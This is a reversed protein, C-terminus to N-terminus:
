RMMVVPPAPAGHHLCIRWSGDQKEFINTAVVRGASDPRKLVEVCTVFGLPGIAHIRVDELEIELDRVGDLVLDWSQLVSEHGAICNTGPHICQVHDGKAWIRKMSRMDAAAFARYFLTNAALVAALNHDDIKRLEDRLRAATSYDESRVAQELDHKLRDYNLASAMAEDEETETERGQGENVASAVVRAREGKKRGGKGSLQRASSGTRVCSDAVVKKAKGDCKGSRRRVTVALEQWPAVTCLRAASM